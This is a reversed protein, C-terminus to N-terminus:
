NFGNDFFTEYIEFIVPYTRGKEYGVPYRLVGYLQKGDVDRYGVLESKPLTKGALWPNLDSLRTRDSFSTNAAYLDAPRDNESMTFVFRTGDRSLRVGGYLRSDKVLPTITKSALEIRVIGREWQDRESWMAYIARGDPAWDIVSLRPNRDEDDSLPLILERPGGAVPLVYWGKRSTV